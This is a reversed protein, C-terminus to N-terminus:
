IEPFDINHQYGDIIDAVDMIGQQLSDNAEDLGESFDSMNEALISMVADEDTVREGRIYAICTSDVSVAPRVMNTAALAIVAVSAAVAVIRRVPHRYSATGPRRFGMMARTEDVAPHKLPTYAIERRLQQEESDSLRCDFYREIRELLDDYVGAATKDTNNYRNSM